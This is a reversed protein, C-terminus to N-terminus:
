RKPQAALALVYHTMPAFGTHIVEDNMGFLFVNAFHKELLCGLSDQDHLNIHQFASQPSAHEAADKNPTGIILPATDAM